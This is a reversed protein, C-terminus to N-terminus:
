HEEVVIQVLHVLTETTKELGRRSNFELKSHFNHGGTFINPCPLGRFTLKSGDTGGRIPRTAPVLDARHAAELAHAVLCPEDKLVENMNRYQEKVEVHVRTGPFRAACDSAIQRVLREKNALEDTDFDRLILRLTSRETDAVGAIPHIFGERGDTAEPRLEPPIRLLFEAMAYASNVMVGKATGPHTSVGDFTITAGLASWTEHNIVGLADGDVTYAFKAGFRAIDFRDIGLGIEEDSTFAVAIPGHPLEPNEALTDIMTMIAAVGAKDDSGLLTTGDSTIVDDGVLDALVPNQAVTIVERPAGPLVIDGGAYREHVVPHVNAGTVASSTDMHALFGVCPVTSGAGLNGPIRAYVICADSTHVDRVGLAHLERALLRALDWQGPTSPVTGTTDSSETNIRVYRLFRDVASETPPRLM